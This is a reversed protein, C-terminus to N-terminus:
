KGRMRIMRAGFEGEAACCHLCASAALCRLPRSPSPPLASTPSKRTAQSDNLQCRCLSSLRDGQGASTINSAGDTAGTGHLHPTTVDTYQTSRNSRSGDITAAVVGTWNIRRDSTFETQHLRMFHQGGVGGNTQGTTDVTMQVPPPQCRRSTYPLGSQPLPM